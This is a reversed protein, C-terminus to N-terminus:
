PPTPNTDSAPHTHLHIQSCKGPSKQQNMHFTILMNLGWLLKGPPAQARTCKGIGSKRRCRVSVRGPM